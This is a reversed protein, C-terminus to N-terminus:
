MYNKEINDPEFKRVRNLVANAIFMSADCISIVFRIALKNGSFLRCTLKFIKGRRSGNSIKYRSLQSLRQASKRSFKSNRKEHPIVAKILLNAPLLPCCIDM